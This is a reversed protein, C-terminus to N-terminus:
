GEQTTRMEFDDYHELEWDKSCDLRELEKIDMVNSIRTSLELCKFQESVDIRYLTEGEHEETYLAIEHCTIDYPILTCGHRTCRAYFKMKSDVSRNYFRSSFGPDDLSTGQGECNEETKWSTQCSKKVRDWAKM